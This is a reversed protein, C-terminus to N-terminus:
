VATSGKPSSFPNYVAFLVFLVICILCEVWVPAYLADGGFGTILMLWYTALFGGLYLFAQTVSTGRVFNTSDSIRSVWAMFTPICIGFGTGCLCIGLSMVFATDGSALMFAGVASLGYLFPLWFRKSRPFFRGFALGGLAGGVSSLSLVAAAFAAGGVDRDAFISSVNVMLLYHQMNYLLMLFAIVWLLGSLRTPAEAVGGASEPEPIFFAMALSGIYLFYVLFTAQWSLDALFGGIFQMVIGGAKMFMSGYGLLASQRDGSYIGIVLANALPITLGLGLGFVARCALILSFDGIWAPAVGGVLTLLSGLIALTRFKVRRGAVAGVIFGSIVIFLNPLTSIMTYQEGPFAEAFSQMAPTIAAYGMTVFFVAFISATGMRGTPCSESM